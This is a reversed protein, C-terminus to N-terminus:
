GLAGAKELAERTTRYAETVVREAPMGWYEPRFTEISVMGQYGCAQLNGLFNDLDVVGSDAFRRKDQGMEAAPVADANNIHAAFIKEPEVRRMASFDNLCGNLYINYSDFVFGVNDRNVARVIADAEEVSRVSSRVFGVLELCLKMDYLRAIDSLATLIRVCERFTDEWKGVYPGGQPNRQLPPVVICYESGIARGALCGLLFEDLLAARKEPVDSEGLFEPYLYLANFAHPRLRSGAFFAALDALSHRTLYDRLMDLRIEIFDFGAKECLELDQELTSCNM